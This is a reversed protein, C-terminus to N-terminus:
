TQQRQKLTKMTRLALECAPDISLSLNLLEEAATLDNMRAILFRAFDAKTHPDRPDADIARQYLSKVEQLLTNEENITSTMGKGDNRGTADTTTSYREELLVALNYLAFPHRPEGELARCYLSEAEPKRNLHTDLMVGYNYLTNSHNPAVILARRYKEEAGIYQQKVESHHM